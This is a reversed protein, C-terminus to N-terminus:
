CLEEEVKINCIGINFLTENYKTLKLTRPSIINDELHKHKKFKTNLHHKIINIIKEKNGMGVVTNNEKGLECCISYLINKTLYGNHGGILANSTLGELQCFPKYQIEVNNQSFLLNIEEVCYFYQRFYNRLNKIINKIDFYDIVSKDISISFNFKTEPKIFEMFIPLENLKNGKTSFDHQKGIFLNDLNVENSDSVYLFKFLINPSAEIKYNKNFINSYKSFINKLAINELKKLNDIPNKAFKGHFNKPYNKNEFFNIYKEKNHYIENAIIATRIAGKISSGPIYPKGNSSKIFTNINNFKGNTKINSYSKIKYKYIDIDKYGHLNKELFNTLNLNGSSCGNLFSEYLGKRLLLEKILKKEDIIMIENDNYVYMSKNLEEGNGIFVPSLTTLSMRYVKYNKIEQSM